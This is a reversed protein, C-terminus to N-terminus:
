VYLVDPVSESPNPKTQDQQNDSFLAFRNPTIFQKNSKSSENPSTQNRKIPIQTVWGDNSNDEQM